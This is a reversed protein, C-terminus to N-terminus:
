QGFEVAVVVDEDPVGCQFRVGTGDRLVRESSINASWRRRRGGAPTDMLSRPATRRTNGERRRDLRRIYPSRSQTRQTPLCLRQGKGHGTMFLIAIAARAAMAVDPADDVGVLNGLLGNLTIAISLTGADSRPHGWQSELEGQASKLDASAHAGANTSTGIAQKSGCMVLGLRDPRQM